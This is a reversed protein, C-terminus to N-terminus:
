FGFGLNISLVEERNGPQNRIPFGFDLAFPVPLVPLLLRLGFGASVTIGDPDFTNLTPSLMGADVFGILWLTGPFVPLRIESFGTVMFNGGIAQNRRSPGVGFLKFGRLVGRGSIPNGGLLFREIFPIQEADSHVDQWWAALNFALVLTRTRDLDVLPQYFQARAHMRWFDITGGIPGGTYSYRYNLQFGETPFQPNDTTTWQIESWLQSITDSGEDQRIENPASGSVDFLRVISYSYGFSWLVDPLVRWGISPDLGARSRSYEPYNDTRFEASISGSLPYGYLWPETFSLRYVQQRDLPPQATISLVQGAGTFSFNPEGWIWSVLSSIDFNRLTLDVSATFGTASNFGAAFNFSNTRGEILEYDIDTYEVIEDGITVLRPTTRDLVGQRPAATEFWQARRLRNSSRRLKNANFVEGPYLSVERRIVDERTAENGRFTVNGVYSKYGQQIRLIVGVRRVPLPQEWDTPVTADRSDIRVFELDTNSYGKEALLARVRGLRGEHLGPEGNLTYEDWPLAERLDFAVFHKGQTPDHLGALNKEGWRELAAPESLQTGKVDLAELLETWTIAPSDYDPQAVGKPVRPFKTAFEVRLDTTAYVAGPEVHFELVVRNRAHNWEINSFSARADLWGRQQLYGQLLEADRLADAEVFPDGRKSRVMDRLVANRETNVGSLVGYWLQYVVSLLGRMRAATLADSDGPSRVGELGTFRIDGIMVRPGEFVEFILAMRGTYGDAVLSSIVKLAGASFAGYDEALADADFRPPVQIVRAKCSVSSFGKFRYFAEILGTAGKISAPNADTVVDGDFAARPFYVPLNLREIDPSNPLERVPAEGSVIKELDNRYGTQNIGSFKLVALPQNPIVRFLLDVGQETYLYDARVDLFAGSAALASVDVDLRSLSFEAGEASDMRARSRWFERVGDETWTGNQPGVVRIRWILPQTLILKVRVAEVKEDYEVRWDAARFMHSETTLYKLDKALDESRFQKGARTRLMGLIEHRQASDPARDFIKGEVSTNLDIALVRKGEAGVPVRQARLSALGTWAPLLLTLLM